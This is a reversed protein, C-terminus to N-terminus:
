QGAEPNTVRVNQGDQLAENGRVIVVTGAELGERIEVREGFSLGTTVNIEHATTTDGQADVTWVTTRGDPHRLLADRPVAVGERGTAVEFVARASMGPTVKAPLEDAAVRVLFNRAQEDSLPVIAAVRAAIDADPLAAVHLTVETETDIEPFLRQPARFDFRLPRTAVLEYVTDGPNVWEGSDALRTTIVGAFPARLEHRELLADQEAVVAEAQQLSAAAMAHEAERDRLESVALSREEALERAEQLRRAANDLEARARALAARANQVAVAALEADLRLLVEGEQVADGVFAEVSGVKGAVAASVASRRLAIATGNLDVHEVIRSREGVAIEVPAAAGSASGPALVALLFLVIIFYACPRPM